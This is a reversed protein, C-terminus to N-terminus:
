RADVRRAHGRLAEALLAPHSRPVWHSADIPRLELDTAYEGLRAHVGPRVFPDRTPVLVLLPTTISSPAPMEPPTVANQRYLEIANRMRRSAEENSLDLYPDDAPAGGDRLARRYISRGFRDIALEPLRPTQLAFVYWSSALQHLAAGLGRLGGRRASDFTSAWMLAIHPGSVSTFSRVRTRGIPDCVYSFALVSGWDHGLLHVKAGEGFVADIVATFDPLIADIRYGSPHAPASSSAVGRLDFAAVHFDRALDAFVDSYVEHCDPFGHVLLVPPSAPDGAEVVHLSVEGSAVTRHRLM